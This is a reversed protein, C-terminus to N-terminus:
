PAPLLQLSAGRPLLAQLAERERSTANVGQLTLRQVSQRGPWTAVELLLAAFAARTGSVDLTLETVPPLAQWMSGLFSNCLEGTPVHWQAAPVERLVLRLSQLQTPWLIDFPAEHAGLVANHLTLDLRQLRPAGEIIRAAEPLRECPTTLQLQRVGPLRVPLRPMLQSLSGLEMRLSEVGRPLYQVAATMEESLEVRRLCELGRLARPTEPVRPYAHPWQWRPAHPLGEMALDARRYFPAKRWYFPRLALQELRPVLRVIDQLGQAFATRSPDDNVLANLCVSTAGPEKHVATQVQGQLPAYTNGIVLSKSPQVPTTLYNSLRQMMARM